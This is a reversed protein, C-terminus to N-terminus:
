LAAPVTLWHGGWWQVGPICSTKIFLLLIVHSPYSFGNTKTKGCANRFVWLLLTILTQSSFSSSSLEERHKTTNPESVELHLHFSRTYWHLLGLTTNLTSTPREINAYGPKLYSYHQKITQMYAVELYSKTYKVERNGTKDKTRVQLWTGIM